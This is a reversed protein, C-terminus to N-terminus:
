IVDTYVSPCMRVAAEKCVLLDDGLESPCHLDDVVRGATADRSIPTRWVSVCVVSNACDSIVDEAEGGDDPVLVTFVPGHSGIASGKLGNLSSEGLPEVARSGGTEDDEFVLDGCVVDGRPNVHVGQDGSGASTGWPLRHADSLQEVPM